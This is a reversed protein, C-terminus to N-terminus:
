AGRRIRTSQEIYKECEDISWIGDELCIKNKWVSFGHVGNINFKIERGKFCRILTNQIFGDKLRFFEDREILYNGEEFNIVLGKLDIYKNKFFINLFEAETFSTSLRELSRDNVASEQLNKWGSETKSSPISITPLLELFEKWDIQEVTDNDLTVKPNINDEYGIQFELAKIKKVNSM